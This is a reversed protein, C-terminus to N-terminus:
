RAHRVFPNFAITPPYKTTYTCIIAHTFSWWQYWDNTCCVWLQKIREAQSYNKMTTVIDNSNYTCIHSLFFENQLNNENFPLIERKVRYIVSILLFNVVKGVKVLTFAICMRAITFWLHPFKSLNFTIDAVLKFPIKCYFYAYM